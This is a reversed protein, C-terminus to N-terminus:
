EARAQSKPVLYVRVGKLGDSVNHEREQELAECGPCQHHQGVYASRDGGRKPDWEEIRTGCGSCTARQLAEFALAKDQDDEDWSLFVSHPIAHPVCYSLELM